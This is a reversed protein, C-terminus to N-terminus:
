RVARIGVLLSPEDPLREWGTMELRFYHDELRNWVLAQAAMLRPSPPEVSWGASLKSILAPIGLGGL